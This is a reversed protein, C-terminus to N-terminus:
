ARPEWKPIKKGDQLKPNLVFVPCGFVKTCHLYDCSTHIGCFLEIPALANRKPTHNYIWAAYNLAFLWLRTDYKDLWHIQVHLLM